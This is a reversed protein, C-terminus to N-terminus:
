HHAVPRMTVGGDEFRTRLEAANEDSLVVARAAPMTAALADLVELLAKSCPGARVLAVDFPGFHRQLEGAAEVSPATRVVTKAHGSKVLDRMRLIEEPDKEVIVISTREISM